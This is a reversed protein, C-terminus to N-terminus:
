RSRLSHALLRKHSNELPTHEPKLLQTVHHEDLEALLGVERVLRRERDSDLVDEFVLVCIRFSYASGHVANHSLFMCYRRATIRAALEIESMM